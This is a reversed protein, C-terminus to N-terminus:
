CCRAAAILPGEGMCPILHGGLRRFDDVLELLQLYSEIYARDEQGEVLVLRGAFFLENVSSQLTAHIKARIRAPPVPTPEGYAARISKDIAPLTTSAITTASASRDIRCLRVSQPDDSPVFTPNHTAVLVQANESALKRLVSAMYKSQPPHQYIEPEECAFILKPETGESTALEQLVALLFSRQFGHGFQTIGGQFSGETAIAGALPPEIKVSRERDELWELGLSADPNAWIQIQDTLRKSIEDLAAQNDGLIGRYESRVRERLKSIDEDFSLQTRVTRQLLDGIATNRSEAGETAADKVAPVYVWQVYKQLRDTGKSAGYFADSSRVLECEAPHDEAYKRLSSLMAKKSAADPLEEFRSQLGAYIARLAGVLAGEKEQNFFEAFEKVARRFGFQNRVGRGETSDFTIETMVRLDDGRVYHSFDAQANESLNKFQLEIQIPQTVNKQYFDEGTIPTKFGPGDPNGAFFLNLAKLVASKGTGNAGVLCTYPEFAIEVEKLCRFNRIVVKHLDM